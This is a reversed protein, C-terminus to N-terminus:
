GSRPRLLAVIPGRESMLEPDLERAAKLHPAAEDTRGRERAALAVRVHGIARSRADRLTLALSGTTYAAPHPKAEVQRRGAEAMRDLARSSQEEMGLAAFARARALEVEPWEAGAWGGSASGRTLIERHSRAKATDGKRDFARALMDHAWIAKSDRAIELNEPFTLAAEADEIAGAADGTALRADARLVHADVWAVHLNMDFREFSHFHRSELVAIAEDYRGNAILLGVLRTTAADSRKVTEAHSEIARLRAAPDVKLRERIADAEVLPLPDDPSREIAREILPLAEDARDFVQSLVWSLNRLAPTLTPEIAVARRWHREAEAPDDDCRANGLLHHAHADDPNHAIAARLADATDIGYPFVGVVPLKSAVSFADAAERDRGLKKLISGLLYRAIPDNRLREPRDTAIAADLVAKADDLCGIRAYRAATEVYLAPDDRLADTWSSVRDAGSHLSSERIALPDLPSEDLALDACGPAHPDSGLRRVLVALLTTAEVNSGDRRLAQSLDGVATLPEGGRARLMALQLRSASALGDDWSAQELADIAEQDKGSRALALGLLYLSEGDRPRTHNATVRAVAAELYPMADAVRDRRLWYAGMRANAVSHGPDRALAERYYPVPDLKPNHFQELRQGALVIEEVSQISAPAPPDQYTPPLTELRRPEPRYAIREDGHQDVVSVGITSPDTGDPVPLEIASPSSPSVSVTGTGIARGDSTLRVTLGNLATTANLEVRAVGARGTDLNLALGRNAQKMGTMERCPYLTMVARRGAHPGIWSYDPQNDSFAGMMLELYPGDRDTLMRDWTRAVDNDGWNWMKKGPVSHHDGILVTGAKKGHDIGALFDHRTGWAFFSTPSATNKWLSVDVGRSFDIGTYVSRAIPWDVFETKAHYVAHEVDPPFVVQYDKNAHVALNAFCLMSRALPTVNLMRFEMELASSGPRLTLGVCWRMGHRKESEGVWVTKSGDANTVIRHDVEMHGTVRHHHPLNWEVGGSCWAGAMGILAPKIVRNRYVHDYGNSKDRAAHIRGGLEPLVVIEVHENELVVARYTRDVPTDTLRDLYPYPYVRPEAGQYSMPVRFIPNTEPPGVEYTPIVLPREEAVVPGAAPCPRAALSATWAIACGLVMRRFM